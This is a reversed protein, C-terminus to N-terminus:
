TLNIERSNASLNKNTSSSHVSSLESLRAIRNIGKDYIKSTPHSDYQYLDNGLNQRMEKQVSSGFEDEATISSEISSTVGRSGDQRNEDISSKSSYEVVDKEPQKDKKKQTICSKCIKSKIQKNFGYVLSNFFGQLGALSMHLYAIAEIENEEFFQYVRNITAFLYCIVMILPYLTLKRIIQKHQKSAETNDVFLSYVFKRIRLYNIFNYIISLWLPIYFLFLRWLLTRISYPGDKHGSIWCSIGSAGYDGTALPIISIILPFVFIVIYYYKSYDDLHNIGYVVSQCLSWSIAMTTIITSLGGFNVLFSQVQCKVGDEPTYDQTIISEFNFMRGFGLIIDSISLLFVLKFAFTQLDKNCLYMLVIFSSGLLSLTNTTIEIILLSEEYGHSQNGYQSQNM